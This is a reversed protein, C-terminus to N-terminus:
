PMQHERLDRLKRVLEEDTLADRTGKIRFVRKQKVPDKVDLLEVELTRADPNYTPSSSSSTSPSDSAASESPSGNASAKSSGDGGPLFGDGGPGGLGSGESGAIILFAVWGTALSALARIMQLATRPLKQGSILKAGGQVLAGTVFGGLVASGVVALGRVVIG